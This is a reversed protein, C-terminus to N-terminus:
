YDKGGFQSLGCLQRDDMETPALTHQFISIFLASIEVLCTSWSKDANIFRIYDLKETTFSM